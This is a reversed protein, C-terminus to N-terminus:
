GRCRFFKRLLSRITALAGPMASAQRDSPQRRGSAMTEFKARSTVISGTGRAASPVGSSANRTMPEPAEDPALAEVHQHARDGLDGIGPEPKDALPLLAAFEFCQHALEAHFPARAKGAPHFLRHVIDGGARDEDHRRAMLREAIHDELGPLRIHRHHRRARLPRAPEHAIALVGQKALDVIDRARDSRDVPQAGIRRQRLPHPGLPM